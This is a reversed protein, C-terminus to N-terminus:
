EVGDVLKIAAQLLTENPNGFPLFTSLNSTETISVNPRYTGGQSTEDESNAVYCVIPSLAWSFRSSNFQEAAMGWCTINSGVM